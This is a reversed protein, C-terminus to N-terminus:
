QKDIEKYHDVPVVSVRDGRIIRVTPIVPPPPAVAVVPVPVPAAVPPPAPKRVHPPAPPVVKPPTAGFLSGRLVSSVHTAKEGDM